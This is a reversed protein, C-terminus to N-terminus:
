TAAALAAALAVGNPTGWGSVADYGPSASYGGTQDTINNGSVIDTCGAAGVTMGGESTNQYLVPTVYGMRNGGAAIQQANILTLLSAMLPSAASTGGNPQSRNDVVLLYPSANWDANASV